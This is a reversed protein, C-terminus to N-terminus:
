QMYRMVGITWTDGIVANKKYYIHTETSDFENFRVYFDDERLRAYKYYQLGGYNSELSLKCYSISDIVINTDIVTIKVLTNGHSSNDYVWINDLKLPAVTQANIYSFFLSLSIAFVIEFNKM